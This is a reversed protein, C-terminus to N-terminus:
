KFRDLLKVEKLSTYISGSDGLDSRYVIVSSVVTQQPLKVPIPDFDLEVHSYIRGLTLHPMFIRNEPAVGCQVVAREITQVLFALEESLSFLLAIIHPHASGPPFMAIKGIELSFSQIAKIEEIITQQIAVIKEEEIEGIFRLTVHLNKPPIWKIKKTNKQQKLLDIVSAIQQRLSEEIDFAIFTRILKENKKM